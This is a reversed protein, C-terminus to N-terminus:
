SCLLGSFKSEQRLGSMLLTDEKGALLELTLQSSLDRSYGGYVWVRYFGWLTASTGLFLVLPVVPDNPDLGLSKELGEIAIYVQQFTAGIPRLIETVREESLNLADRIELPLLDKAPRYSYDVFSAGKAISEEVAVIAVRLVDVSTGTAKQTAERFSSSFSTLRQCRIRRAWFIMLGAKASSLSDNDMELSDSRLNPNLPTMDITSTIEPEVLQILSDTNDAFQDAFNLPGEEVDSINYSELFKLKGGGMPHPHLEDIAGVSSDWDKYFNCNINGQRRCVYPSSIRGSQAFHNCVEM